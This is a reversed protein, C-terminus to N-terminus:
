RRYEEIWGVAFHVLERQRMFRLTGNGMVASNEVSLHKGPYEARVDALYLSTNKDYGVGMLM